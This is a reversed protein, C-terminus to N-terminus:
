LGSFYIAWCPDWPVSCLVQLGASGGEAATSLVPSVVTAEHREWALATLVWM